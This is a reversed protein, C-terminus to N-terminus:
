SIPRVFLLWLAGSWLYEDANMVWGSWSVCVCMQKMIIQCVSLNAFSENEFSYDAFTRVESWSCWFGMFWIEKIHQWCIIDEQMQNRKLRRLLVQLGVLVDALMNCEHAIVCSSRLFWREAQSHLASASSTLPWVCVTGILVVDPDNKSFHIVLQFNEVCVTWM